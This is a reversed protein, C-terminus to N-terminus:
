SPRKRTNNNYDSIAFDSIRLVPEIEYINTPKQSHSIQFVKQFYFFQSLLFYRQCMQETSKFIQPVVFVPIM